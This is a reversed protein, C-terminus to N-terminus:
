IIFSNSSFFNGMITVLADPETAAAAEDVFINDFNRNITEIDLKVLRSCTTLTVIMVRLHNFEEKTPFENENNRLNSTRRLVASIEDDKTTKLLSPSYFRYIRNRHVHKLLRVGIEDCASNSQTTILIKSNLKLKLIQAVCEVLCSTKGTGPPGFVVYPFPFATCNVINKIAAKQEENRGIQPNYWEFNDFKKDIRKLCFKPEDEFDDFFDKLDNRQIMDLAQFCAQSKIKQPVFRVFRIDYDVKLDIEKTPENIIIDFTMQGNAYGDIQAFICNGRFNIKKDKYLKIPFLRLSM